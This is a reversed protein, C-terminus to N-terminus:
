EEKKMSEKIQKNILATDNVPIGESGNILKRFVTYHLSVEHETYQSHETSYNRKILIVSDGINAVARVKAKNYTICDQYEAAVPLEIWQANATSAFLIILALAAVGAALIGYLINTYYKKM